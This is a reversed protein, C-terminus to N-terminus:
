TILISVLIQLYLILYPTSTLEKIRLGEFIFLSLCSSGGTLSNKEMTKENEKSEIAPLGIIKPWDFLDKFKFMRKWLHEIGLTIQVDKYFKLVIKNSLIATIQYHFLSQMSFTSQMM